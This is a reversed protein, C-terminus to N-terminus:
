LKIKHTRSSSPHFKVQSDSGNTYTSQVQIRVIIICFSLLRLATFFTHFNKKTNLEKPQECKLMVVIFVNLFLEQLKQLANLIRELTRYLYLELM